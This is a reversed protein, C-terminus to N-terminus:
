APASSSSKSADSIPSGSRSALLKKKVEGAATRLIAMDDPELEAALAAAAPVPELTGLRVLQSLIVADDIAMQYGVRARQNEALDGPIEVAEAARYTDGLTSPRLEFDRHVVGDVVVGFALSGTVTVASM